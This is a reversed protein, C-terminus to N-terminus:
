PGADLANLMKLLPSGTSPSKAKFTFPHVVDRRRAAEGIDPESM